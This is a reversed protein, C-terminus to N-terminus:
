DMLIEDWHRDPRQVRTLRVLDTGDGLHSSTAIARDVGVDVQILGEKVHRTTSSLHTATMVFFM